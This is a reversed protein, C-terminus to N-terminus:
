PGASKAGRLQLTMDALIALAIEAPTVAGIDLGVPGRIRAFAAEDLGADLLRARRAGHTKKSGLAGIYFAETGAAIRLAPDDLKPDHTLTVVASRRDPRLAALVEDPWGEHVAIDPFRAGDRWASRPDILVTEYGAIRAMPLLAQAIHVAGVVLLRLPPNFIALFFGGGEVDVLRSVDGDMAAEAHAALAPTLDLEGLPADGAVILTQAGDSLRTVLAARRKEARARNLTELVHRRM